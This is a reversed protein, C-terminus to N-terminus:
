PFDPRAELVTVARAEGDPLVDICRGILHHLRAGAACAAQELRSMCFDPSVTVISEVRVCAPLAAVEWGTILPLKSM